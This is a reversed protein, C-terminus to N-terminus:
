RNIRRWETVIRTFDLFTLTAPDLTLAACLDPLDHSFRMYHRAIEAGSAFHSRRKSAAQLWDRVERVAQRPDSAHSRIDQGSIDSIFARYRYPERDLILCRKKEQGWEGYRKCGLFLGLELPMNFRPLHTVADLEVTSLDNIGFRCEEIIREIKSLRIESADDEELACRAVFGLFRVCFVIADFVPRYGPDFPCNIFVHNTRVQKSVPPRSAISRSGPLRM